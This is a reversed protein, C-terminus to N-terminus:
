HHEPEFITQARNEIQYAFLGPKAWEGRVFYLDDFDDFEFWRIPNQSVDVSVIGLKIAVNEAGAKPYRQEVVVVEDARIDFRMEMPMESEDIQTFAIHKEDPSWWYGTMRGLAGCIGMEEQAVFEAVGNSVAGKGSDTLQVTLGTAMEYVYINQRSVFSIFRANPSFRADIICDVHQTDIEM